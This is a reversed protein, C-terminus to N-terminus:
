RHEEEYKKLGHCQCECIAVAKYEKSKLGVAKLVNDIVKVPISPIDCKCNYCSGTTIDQGEQSTAAPVLAPATVSPHM